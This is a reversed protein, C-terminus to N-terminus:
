GRIITGWEDFWPRCEYHPTQLQRRLKKMNKESIIKVPLFAAVPFDPSSDVERTLAAFPSSNWGTWFPRLFVTATPLSNADRFPLKTVFFAREPTFSKAVPIYISITNRRGTNKKNPYSGGNTRSLFDLLMRPWLGFTCKWYTRSRSVPSLTKWSHLCEDMSLYPMWPTNPCHSPTSVSRLFCASLHAHHHCGPMSPQPWFPPPRLFGDQNLYREHDPNRKQKLKCIFRILTSIIITHNPYRSIENHQSIIDFYKSNM